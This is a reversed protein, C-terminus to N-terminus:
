SGVAVPAREENEEDEGWKELWDGDVGEVHRYVRNVGWIMRDREYLQADELLELAKKIKDQNLTKIEPEM